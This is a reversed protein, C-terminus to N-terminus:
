IAVTKMGWMVRRPGILRAVAHKEMFESMYIPVLAEERDFLFEALEKSLQTKGVGSSASDRDAM